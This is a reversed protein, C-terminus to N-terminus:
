LIKKIDTHNSNSVIQSNIEQNGTGTAMGPNIDAVQSANTKADSGTQLENTPFQAEDSPLKPEVLFSPDHYDDDTDSNDSDTLDSEDEKAVEGLREPVKSTRSSRRQSM